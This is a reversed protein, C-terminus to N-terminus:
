AAKQDVTATSEHRPALAAIWAEATHGLYYSPTCSSRQPQRALRHVQQAWSHDAVPSAPGLVITPIETTTM